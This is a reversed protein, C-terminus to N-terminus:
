FPSNVLIAAILFTIVPIPLFISFIPVRTCQKHSYSITYSSQFITQCNKLLNFLSNIYLRATRSRPIYECSIFVYILTFVQILIEMITWRSLSQAGLAPLRPEIGPWPVLDWMSCGLYGLGLAALYIFILFFFFYRYMFTWPLMGRIALFYFCGLQREVSSHIHEYISSIAYLPTSYLLLLFYLVSVHQLMSSGQFHALHFFGTVLLWM